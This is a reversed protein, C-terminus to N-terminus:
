EGCIESVTREAVALVEAKTSGLYERKCDHNYYWGFKASGAGDFAWCRVCNKLGNRVVEQAAVVSILKDTM